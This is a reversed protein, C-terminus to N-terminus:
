HDQNGWNVGAGAADADGHAISVQQKMPIGVAYNPIIWVVLVLWGTVTPM